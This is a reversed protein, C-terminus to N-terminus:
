EGEVAAIAARAIGKCYALEGSSPVSTAILKLAELLAKNQAELETIRSLANVLTQKNDTYVSITRSDPDIEEQQVPATRCCPNSTCNGTTEDYGCPESQAQLKAENAKLIHNAFLRQQEIEYETM